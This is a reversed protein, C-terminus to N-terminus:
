MIIVIDILNMTVQRSPQGTPKRSPQGTPQRSPQGSPNTPNSTPQRTPQSTPQGTPYILPKTATNNGSFEIAAMALSRGTLKSTVGITISNQALINGLFTAKKGILANTGAVWWVNGTQCGKVCEIVSNEGTQVITKTQFIWYTNQDNLGDLILTASSELSFAGPASCYVGAILILGDLFESALFNGCTAVTADNYSTKFDIVCAKATDDNLHSSGDLLVYDGTITVGPSTGISGETITTKEAEFAITSLALANFDDCSRIQIYGSVFSYSTDVWSGDDWTVAAQALARGQLVSRAGFTISAYSLIVGVFISSVGVTTSAAVEWFVNSALAGNTLVVSSRLNTTLTNSVQFVWVASTDNGADLTLVGGASIEMTPSCYVGPSLTRGNLYVTSFATTCIAGAAVDIATQFDTACLNTMGNQIHTSGDDLRYNGTITPGTNGVSGSKIITMALNFVMSSGAMTAFQDCGGIKVTVEPLQGESTGNPLSTTAYGAFIVSSMSLGRGTLTVYASFTIDSYALLNGYFYSSYGISATTGVAWFINNAQARNKLIMSTSTGMSLTTVTQFIWVANTDNLADLAVYQYKTLLFTGDVSCYAGSSLTLDSLDSSTLYYDCRATTAENYAGAFDYACSTAEATNIYTEGDSLSYNGTISSGPTL